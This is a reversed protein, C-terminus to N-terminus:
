TGGDQRNDESGDSSWSFTIKGGTWAFIMAVSLLCFGLMLGVALTLTGLGLMALGAMLIGGGASELFLGLGSLTFGLGSMIVLAVSLYLIATM